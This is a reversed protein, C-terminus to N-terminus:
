RTILDILPVLEEISEKKIMSFSRPLRYMPNGSISQLYQTLSSESHLANKLKEIHEDQATFDYRNRIKMIRNSLVLIAYAETLYGSSAISKYMYFLLASQAFNEEDLIKIYTSISDLYNGSRKLSVALQIEPELSYDYNQSTLQYKNQRVKKLYERISEQIKDM